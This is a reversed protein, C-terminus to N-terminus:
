QRPTRSRTPSRTSAAPAPGSGPCDSQWSGRESAAPDRACAAVPCARSLHGACRPRAEVRVRRELREVAVAHRVDDDAGEGAHDLAALLQRLADVDDRRRPELVEAAELLGKTVDIRLALVAAFKSQVLM